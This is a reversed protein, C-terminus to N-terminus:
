AHILGEHRYHGLVRRRWVMAGYRGLAADVGKLAHLMWGPAVVLGVHCPLGMVRLLLVDGCREQGPTIEQWPGKGGEVLRAVAERDATTAYGEAYAPLDLGFREALVLRVLGWCDCGERTRGHDAFPLGVYEAVWAPIM